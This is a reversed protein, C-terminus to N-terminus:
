KIGAVRVSSAPARNVRILAGPEDPFEGVLWSASKDDASPMAGNLQPISAASDSGRRTNQPAFENSQKKRVRIDQTPNTPVAVLRRTNTM